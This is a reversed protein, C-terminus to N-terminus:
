VKGKHRSNGSSGGPSAPRGGFIGALAYRVADIGHDYGGAPVRRGASDRLYDGNLNKKYSYLAFERQLNLSKKHILVNYNQIKQIGFVVSGAGKEAPLAMIGESRLEAISKQEASDFHITARGIGLGKIHEAIAKNTLGTQWLLERLYLNQGEIIVQIITTPDSVYGFDAGYLKYKHSEPEAEYIGFGDEFVIDEGSDWHGLFQHNYKRPNSEKLREVKRLYDPDLNKTNDLYTTHIYTTSEVQGSMFFRKYIWHEKHSPNMVMIVRNQVGLQRVSNDIDDFTKENVLEEAEDLVWCTLDTISKLNATQNGSATKIGRFIIKSGTYSNTIISDKANVSFASAVGLKSVARMFEQIISIAASTMTYRTFLIVQGQKYTLYLLYIAVQMSKGSGRGGTVITYRNPNQLAKYKPILSLSM